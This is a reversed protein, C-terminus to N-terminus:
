PAPRHTAPETRRAFAFLTGQLASPGKSAWLIGAAYLPASFSLYSPEGAHTFVTGHFGNQILADGLRRSTNCRYYTPFVDESCRGPQVRRLINAHLSDPIVRALVAAYGLSNPTRLCIYGGPKVVRRCEAFFASPDALHEVVNDILCVDISSREVPWAPGRTLRFEDVFPNAAASPDTDLGVVKACKGRLVRLRVRSEVPDEGYEGRGCGVDLVTADPQLLANVRLYFAMTGDVRTFGGFASEPYFREIM